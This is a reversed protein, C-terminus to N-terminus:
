QYSTCCHSRASLGAGQATGRQEQTRRVGSRQLSLGGTFNRRSQLVAVTNWNLLGLSLYVLIFMSDYKSKASASVQTCIYMYMYMYMHVYAYTCSMYIM